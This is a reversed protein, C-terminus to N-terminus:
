ITPATCTWRKHLDQSGSTTQPNCTGITISLPLGVTTANLGWYDKCPRLGGDKKDIFFFGTATPSTSPCIYGAALAEQIYEEMAQKEPISLPYVKSKPPM